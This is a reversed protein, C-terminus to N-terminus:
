AQVRVPRKSRFLRGAAGTGLLGDPEEIDAGPECAAALAAWRHGATRATSVVKLLDADPPPIQQRFYGALETLPEEMATPRPRMAFEAGDGERDM